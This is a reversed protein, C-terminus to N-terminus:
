LGWPRSLPWTPVVSEYPFTTFKVLFVSMIVAGMGGGLSNKSRETFFCCNQTEDYMIGCGVSFIDKFLVPFRM